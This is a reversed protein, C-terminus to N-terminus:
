FLPTTSGLGYLYSSIQGNATEQLTVPLGGSADQLYSTVTVNYSMALRTNAGDYSFGATGAGQKNWSSLHNRADYGYATSYNGGTGGM